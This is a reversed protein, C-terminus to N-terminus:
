GLSGPEFARTDLVRLVEIREATVRYVFAFPTRTVPFRRVDERHTPRGARPNDILVAEVARVRERARAAGEPFIREYYDRFWALDAAASPLYVLNM